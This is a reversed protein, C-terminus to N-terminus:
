LSPAQHRQPPGQRIRQRIAELPWEDWTGWRDPVLMELWWTVGVEAYTQAIAGDAERDIGSSVGGHIVEFPEAALGALTRQEHVYSIMTSMDEPKMMQTLPLNHGLGFIGDWRAARRFPSKLPWFGAVWIPIRPTQVPRPLFQAHRIHYYTGEHRFPEGSWLNTLVDLGEDLMAARVKPDAEEGLDDFENPVQGLGVGVVLRGRSLHDLTVTERAVKWPRRRPLPTVLAGLRLTQTRVAIAALAIWPDAFPLTGGSTIHDWLFFGDWGAAEADAALTALTIPDACPGFPPLYIGYQM